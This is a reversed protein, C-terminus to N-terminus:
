KQLSTCFEKVAVSANPKLTDGHGGLMTDFELRSIKTISKLASNMDPTFRKSPGSIKGNAYRMTDGVFILKRGSDYLSISGPTHGPTHVVVLKGVRDGDNLIIDPRVPKPKFFPSVVKFLIGLAGRPSPQAKEGSVFQADEKHVAVKANTQEKLQQANGIHDVHCHTLVITTIESPKRNIRKIYDIIRRVSGPMGTDVLLLESEDLLLYVNANVGDVRHINPVIEL